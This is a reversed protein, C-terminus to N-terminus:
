IDESLFNHEEKEEKGRGERECMREQVEEGEDGERVEGRCERVGPWPLQEAM